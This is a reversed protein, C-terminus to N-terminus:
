FFVRATFLTKEKGIIKLLEWTSRKLLFQVLRFLIGCVIVRGKALFFFVYCEEDWVPEIELRIVKSSGRLMGILASLWGNYHPESFGIRGGVRIVKPKLIKLVNRFFIYLDGMFEKNFNHLVALQVPVIKGQGKKEKKKKKKKKNKQQEKLYLNIPLGAAIVQIQLPKGPTSQWCGRLGFLPTCFIGFNLVLFKDYEGKVKYKFPIFLLCFFIAILILLFIRIFATLVEM